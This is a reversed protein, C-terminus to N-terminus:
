LGARRVLDPGPRGDPCDERMRAQVMGEVKRFFDADDENGARTSALWDATVGYSAVLAERRAALLTSDLDPLRGLCRWQAEVRAWGDKGLGGGGDDGAREGGVPAFANPDEDQPAGPLSAPVSGDRDRPPAPPGVCGVTLLASIILFNWRV